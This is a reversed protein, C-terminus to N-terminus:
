GRSIFLNYYQSGPSEREAWVWVATYGQGYYRSIRNKIDRETYKLTAGAALPTDWTGKTSKDLEMGISLAFDKAYQVWYEVDFPPATTAPKATTTIAKRTTSVRITTTATVATTPKRSTTVAPASPKSQATTTVAAVTTATTTTTSVSETTTVVITAETTTPVETSTATSYAEVMTTSIVDEMLALSDVDADVESGAYCAVFSLIMLAVIAIALYKKMNEDEM